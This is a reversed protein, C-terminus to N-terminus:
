DLNEIGSGSMKGQLVEETIRVLRLAGREVGV